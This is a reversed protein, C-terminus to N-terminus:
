TSHPEDNCTGDHGMRRELLRVPEVASDAGAPGVPGARSSTGRPAVLTIPLRPEEGQVVPEPCISAVTAARM